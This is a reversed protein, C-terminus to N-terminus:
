ARSEARRAGAPGYMRVAIAEDAAIDRLAKAMQPHMGKPTTPRPRFGLAHALYDSAYRGGLVDLLDLQVGVEELVPSSAATLDAETM